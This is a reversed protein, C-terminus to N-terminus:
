WNKLPLDYPALPPWALGSEAMMSAFVPTAELDFPAGCLCVFISDLLVVHGFPRADIAGAIRNAENRNGRLAELVLTARDDGGVLGLYDQEYQAAAPADGLIAALMGLAQLRRDEALIRHRIVAEAADGDGTFALALALHRALMPHDSREVAARALRVAEVARGQWLALGVRHLSSRIRLPDCVAMRDFADRIAETQGPMAALLQLWVGTECSPPAAAKAALLGLGRWPGLFLARGFAANARESVTRANRIARDFDERLAGPAAEVDDPTIDGDLEGNAHSILIHAYLDTHYEWAAYLGPELGSAREFHVNAQRLLSIQNAEQHAREYLEIGKQFAIFAEVNRTRVAQMRQRLSDDLLVDLAQAVKEAIDAQVSFDNGTSRDFTESWLQFGDAARVLKASIRLQDGARRVSGEVVHAVGLARAIEGVALDSDRYHFASTRATVLLDPAQGLANIIEETLGDAFYDDDPGNSMPVFPLVAVSKALPTTAGPAAARSAEIQQLGATALVDDAERASTRFRDFLLLAVALALAVMIVRDLTHGRRARRGAPLEKERRVGEPTWEFVWAFVLAPILGVVLLFLLYRPVADPLRLIPGVVDIVQLLLWSGVVYAAGVRFVNRRRLEAILSM